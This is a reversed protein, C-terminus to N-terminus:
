FGVMLRTYTYALLRGAAVVFVWLGLSAAGMPLGRPVRDDPQRSRDLMRWVRWMVVVAAVIAAIKFYFLPNTLSKTPYAILLLLGSAVSVALGTWFIPLYRNLSAAPVGRLFGLLRLSLPLSTGVVLAVGIIHATLSLSFAYDSERLATSFPGEEIWSFFPDM